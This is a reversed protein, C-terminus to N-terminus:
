PLKKLRPEASNLPVALEKTPEMIIGRNANNQTGLNRLVKM